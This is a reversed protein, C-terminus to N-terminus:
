KNIEETLFKLAPVIWKDWFAWTHAGPGEEYKFEFETDAIARRFTQNQEYLFDSTGCAAYIRPKPKDDPFTKLLHIVDDESGPLATEYDEGWISTVITHWGPDGAKVDVNM